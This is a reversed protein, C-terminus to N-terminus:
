KNMKVKHKAEAYEPMFRIPLSMEVSVPQGNAKAPLWNPSTKVLRVAEEDCGGGIGRIVRIDSLNGTKDVVFQVFVRGTVGAKKAEEPYQMHDTVHKYFADLGGNPQPQEEVILLDNDSSQAQVQSVCAFISFFLFTFTSKLIGYAPKITCKKM